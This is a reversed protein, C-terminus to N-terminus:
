DPRSLPTGPLILDPDPGIAASNAAYWRPWAAAVQADDAEPALHAAAITWLSDGPQVVYDASRAAEPEEPSATPTSRPADELDPASTTAAPDGGDATPDAGEGSETRAGSQRGEASTGESAASGDDSDARDAASAPGRSAAAWTLDEAITPEPAPETPDAQAPTLSLGAALVAGAGAGLWRSAGPAGHTRLLAEGARWTAGCLQALACLVGLLASLAYWAAVGAGIAALAAVLVEEVQDPSTAASDWRSFPVLARSSARVLLTCLASTGALATLGLVAGRVARGAPPRAGDACRLHPEAVRDGSPHISNM